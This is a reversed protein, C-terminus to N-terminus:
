WYITTTKVIKNNEEMFNSLIDEFVIKKSYIRPQFSMILWLYDWQVQQNELYNYIGFNSDYLLFKSSGRLIQTWVVQITVISWQTIWNWVTFWKSPIVFPVKNLIIRLIFIVCYKKEILKKLMKARCIWRIWRIIAFKLITFVNKRWKLM